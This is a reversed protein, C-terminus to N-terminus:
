PANRKHRKLLQLKLTIESKVLIIGDSKLGNILYEENINNLQPNETKSNIM